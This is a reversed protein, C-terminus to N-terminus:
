WYRAANSALQGARRRQGPTLALWVDISYGCRAAADTARRSAVHSRRVKEREARTMDLWVDVSIGFREATPLAVARRRKDVTEKSQKKGLMSQRMAEVHAASKRVGKLRASHKRKEAESIKRPPRAAAAASIKARTEASVQYRPKGEGGDSLNILCGTGLDKRGLLLILANEWEYAEFERLGTALFSIMSPDPPSWEWGGRRHRAFARTGSGKGIYYPTGDARLYAYVYFRRENVTSM